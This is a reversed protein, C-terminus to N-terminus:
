KCVLSDSAGVSLVYNLDKATIKPSATLDIDFINGVYMATDVDLTGLDIALLRGHSFIRVETDDSLKSALGIVEINSDANPASKCVFIISEDGGGEKVGRLIRASASSTIAFILISMILQTKM